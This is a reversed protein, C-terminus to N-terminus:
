AAVQARATSASVSGTQLSLLGRSSAVALAETRGEARFKGLIHSIHVKVTGESMGLLMGIQKNSKGSAMADLVDRERKTLEPVSSRKRLIAQVEQPIWSEGRFLARIGLVVDAVSSSKPIYGTAGAALAQYAHEESVAASFIAIKLQPFAKVMSAISQIANTASPVFDMLVVDIGSLQQLMLVDPEIMTGVVEIDDIGSVLACLGERVVPHEDVIAIRIKNLSFASIAQPQDTSM